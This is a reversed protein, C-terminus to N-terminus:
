LEGVRVHQVEDQDVVERHKLPVLLVLAPVRHRVRESLRPLLLDVQQLAVRPGRVAAGIVQDAVAPFQSAAANTYMPSLHLLLHEAYQSNPQLLRLAPKPVHQLRELISRRRM